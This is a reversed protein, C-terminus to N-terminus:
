FERGVVHSECEKMTAELDHTLDKVHAKLQNKEDRLEEIKQASETMLADAIQKGKKLADREAVLAAHSNVAAVIFAANVRAMTNDHLSLPPAAVEDGDSDLILIGGDVRWPLPSHNVPTEVKTEAESMAPTEVGCQEGCWPTRPHPMPFDKHESM